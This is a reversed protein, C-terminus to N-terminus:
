GPVRLSFQRAVATLLLGIAIFGLLIGLISTMLGTWGIEPLNLFPYPYFGSFNARILIYICYVAPWIVWLAIDSRQFGVKPSLFMWWLVSMLPVLTHAGQDSWFDLGTLSILHALLTHYVLGVCVIAIVFAKVIRPSVTRGLAILLMLLLIIANTLITFYQTMYSLADLIGDSQLIRLYFRAALTIAAAVAVATAGRRAAASYSRSLDLKTM